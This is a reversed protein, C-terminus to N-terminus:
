GILNLGGNDQGNQGLQAELQAIKKDKQECEAAQLAILYSAVELQKDKREIQTQRDVVNQGNPNKVVSTAQPVYSNSSNQHFLVTM